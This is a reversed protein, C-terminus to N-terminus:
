PQFTAADLGFRNTAGIQVQATVRWFQGASLVNQLAQGNQMAQGNQTINNNVNGNDILNQSQGAPPQAPPTQGNGMNAAAGNRAQAQNSLYFGNFGGGVMGGAVVQLPVAICTGIVTVNQNLKRNLGSVQFAFGSGAGAQQLNDLSWLAQMGPSSFQFQVAANNAMNSPLEGANAQENVYVNSQPQFNGNSVEQQLANAAAARAGQNAAAQRLAQGTEQLGALLGPDVVQGEYASGDADLIRVQQGAREIQFSALVAVQPSERDKVSGAPAEQGPPPGSRVMRQAFVSSSPSNRIASPPNRIASDPNTIPPATPTAKADEMRGAMAGYSGNIGGIVDYAPPIVPAVAVSAAPASPTSATPSAPSTGAAAAPAPPMATDAVPQSPGTASAVGARGGRRGGGRGAGGGAGGGGGRGGAGGVMGGGGGGFGGGGGGPGSPVAALANYDAGSTTNASTPTAPGNSQLAGSAVSPSVVATSEGPSSPNPTAGPQAIASDAAMLRLREMPLIDNTTAGALAGSVPRTEESYRRTPQAPSAALPAAREASPPAATAAVPTAPARAPATAPAAVPNNVPNAAVPAATVPTPAGSPAPAPATHAAAPPPPSTVRWNSEWTPAKAFQRTANHNSTYNWIMAVVLAAAAGGLALRLWGALSLGWRPQPPVTSKGLVSRVEQQLRARVRPALQFPAGAQERRKRAYARLLDEM